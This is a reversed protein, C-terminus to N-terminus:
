PAKANAERILGDRLKNELATKLEPEPELGLATRWQFRAERQRGVSWYADGLHDNIVPDEPRLEVARELAEVAEGYRGLRYLVWGLSDVIYGDSPRLDVAKRIMQEAEALNRGQEVWSYGLYNLVFPQEPEFQLAKLFDSEARSWEKSRELAIGRAYLLRWHRANVEPIRGFAEDYAAVAEAFRERKRLIDGLEGLPEPDDPRQRALKRLVAEAEDFREMRDLNRAASLGGTWALPSAPDIGAYIRNADEYRGLDEMLDAVVIQLAPFNPRLFLGLRGLMLATERNNQRGVIGSADFLAEAAGDRASRIDRAPPEGRQLRDVKERLLRSEPHNDLYGRYVALAVDPKGFRALADGGLEALRLWPRPHEDLVIRLRTEATERRGALDGIWAAHLHRLTQVGDGGSAPPELLALAHDVRNAGLYAWAQLIPGLHGLGGETPLGSLGEAAADYRGGRIDDVAITIRALAADEGAKLYDRAVAVGEEVRGDLLLAQYTRDLLEPDGPFRALAARLFDAAHGADKQMRAHRAALYNGSVTDGPVAGAAERRAGGDAACATAVLACALM